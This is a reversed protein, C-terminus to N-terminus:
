GHKAGGNIGNAAAKALAALAVANQSAEAEAKMRQAVEARYIFGPVLDGRIMALVVFVLAALAGFPGYLEAPV